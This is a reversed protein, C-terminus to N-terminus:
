VTRNLPGVAYGQKNGAGDPHPLSHGSSHNVYVYVSVCVCLICLAGNGFGNRRSQGKYQRFFSMFKNKLCIVTNEVGPFDQFFQNSM